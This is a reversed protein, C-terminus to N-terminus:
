QKHFQNPIEESLAEGVLEFQETVMEPLLVRALDSSRSHKVTAPINM